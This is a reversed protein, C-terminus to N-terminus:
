IKLGVCVGRSLNINHCCNYCIVKNKYMGPLIHQTNVKLVYTLFAGHGNEQLCLPNPPPKHAFFVRLACNCGLM